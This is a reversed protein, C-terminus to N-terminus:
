GNYTNCRPCTFEKVESVYGHCSRCEYGKAQKCAKEAGSAADGAAIAALNLGPDISAEIRPGGATKGAEEGAAKLKVTVLFAEKGLFLIENDKLPQRLHKKCDIKSPGVFTGNTSGLDSVVYHDDSAEICCHTGSIQPVGGLVDAGKHARGIIIKEEHLLEIVAGNKQYTLALGDLIKKEQKATGADAAADRPAQIPSLCNPCQAPPAAGEPFPIDQGCYRCKHTKMGM